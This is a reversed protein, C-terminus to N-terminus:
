VTTLEVTPVDLKDDSSKLNVKSGTNFISQYEHTANNLVSVSSEYPQNLDITLQYGSATNNAMNCFSDMSGKFDDISFVGKCYGKTSILFYSVIGYGGRNITLSCDSISKIDANNIEYASLMLCFNIYKNVYLKSIPYKIFYRLDTKCESENSTGKVFLRYLYLENDLQTLDQKHKSQIVAPSNNIYNYPYMTCYTSIKTDCKSTVMLYEDTKVVYLSDPYSYQLDNAVIPCDFDISENIEDIEDGIQEFVLEPISSKISQYDENISDIHATFSISTTRINYLPNDTFLTHIVGNCDKFLLEYEIDVNVIISDDDVNVIITDDNDDTNNDDNDDTDNTNTVTSKNYIIICIVAITIICIVIVLTKM